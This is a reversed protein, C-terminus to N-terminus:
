AGAPSRRRSPRVPERASKACPLALFHPTTSRRGWLKGWTARRGHDVCRHRTMGKSVSRELVRCVVPTPGHCGPPIRPHARRLWGELAAQPVCERAALTPDGTEQVLRVLRHDYTRLSRKTAM